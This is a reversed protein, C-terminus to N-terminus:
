QDLIAAFLAFIILAGFLYAISEKNHEYIKSALKIISDIITGFINQIASALSDLTWIGTATNYILIGFLIIIIVLAIWKIIDKLEMTIIFRKM